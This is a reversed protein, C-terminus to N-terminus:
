PSFEKRLKLYVRFREAKAKAAAEEAMRQKEAEKKVKEEREYAAVFEKINEKTPNSIVKEPIELSWYDSDGCPYTDVFHFFITGYSSVNFSRCDGISDTRFVKCMIKKATDKAKEVIELAESIGM